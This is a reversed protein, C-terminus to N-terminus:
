SKEKLEVVEAGAGMSLVFSDEGLDSNVTWSGATFELGLSYGDRPRVMNIKRPLLFGGVSEMGSYSAEGVLSGKEDFSLVRAIALQSREIWISRVTHIIPPADEKYVSLIYYKATKDASETVSIRLGPNKLDIGAPIVAEYLHSPRLSIGNPLDDAYLEGASNRGKYVKNTNRFWASFEDGGSVVEFVPTRYIVPNQMVLHMSSPRQLMIYGPASRYEEQRGSEWEGSTMTATMSSSKLDAIGDYKNVIAVLEDLSASRAALIQPPVEVRLERKVGCGTVALALVLLALVGLFQLPRGTFSLSIQIKGV